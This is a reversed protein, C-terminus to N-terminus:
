ATTFFDWAAPCVRLAKCYECAHYSPHKPQDPQEAEALIRCMDAYAIKLDPANYATASFRKAEEVRPQIIAVAYHSRNPYHLWLLVAYALMQVNTNAPPVPTRGFKYDVISAYEDAVLAEDFKGSFLPTLDPKHAWLRQEKIIRGHLDYDEYFAQKLSLATKLAWRQEDLLDPSLKEQEALDHLTSGEDRWDSGISSETLNREELWSGRCELIRHLSSASPFGLREDSM